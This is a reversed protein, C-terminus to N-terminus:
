KVKQIKKSVSRGAIFIALALALLKKIIIREM